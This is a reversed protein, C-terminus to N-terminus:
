AFTITMKTVFSARMKRCEVVLTLVALSLLSRTYLMEGWKYLTIKCLILCMSDFVSLINVPNKFTRQAYKVSLMIDQELPQIKKM